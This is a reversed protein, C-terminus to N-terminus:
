LLILVVAVVQGVLRCCLWSAGGAVGAPSRWAVVGDDGRVVGVDEDLADTLLGLM